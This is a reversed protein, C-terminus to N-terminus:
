RAKGSLRTLMLSPDFMQALAEAKAIAWTLRPQQMPVKRSKKLWISLLGSQCARHGLSHTQLRNKVLRKLKRRSLSSLSLIETKNPNSIQSLRSVRLMMMKARSIAIWARNAIVWKVLYLWETKLTLGLTRVGSAWAVDRLEGILQRRRKKLWRIISITRRRLARSNEFLTM